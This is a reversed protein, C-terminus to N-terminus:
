RASTEADDTVEDVAIHSVVPGRAPRQAAAPGSAAGADAPSERAPAPPDLLAAMAAMLSTGADLLHHRVEPSVSRAIRIVRCVPCTRCTCDGAPDTGSAEAEEGVGAASEASPRTSEGGNERVWGSLAGLLATAEEALSGVEPREGSGQASM